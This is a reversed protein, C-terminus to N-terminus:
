ATIWTMSIEVWEGKPIKSDNLNSIIIKGNNYAIINFFKTNSIGVGYTMNIPIYESPITAIETRAPIDESTRSIANITM